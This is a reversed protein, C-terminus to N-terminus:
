LNDKSLIVGGVRYKAIVERLNENAKPWVEGAQVGVMLTQGLLTETDLSEVFRAIQEDRASESSSGQASKGQIRLPLLAGLACVGIAIRLAAAFGLSRGRGVQQNGRKSIM